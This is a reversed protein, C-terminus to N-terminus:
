DGYESLNLSPLFQEGARTGNTQIYLKTTSLPYYGVLSDLEVKMLTLNRRGALLQLTLIM